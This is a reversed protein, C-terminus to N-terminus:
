IDLSHGPHITCVNLMPKLMKLSQSLAKANSFKHMSSGFENPIYTDGTFLDPNSYLCISGPTHGPTHIVLLSEEGFRIADQDNLFIDIPLKPTKILKYLFLDDKHLSIPINFNLKLESAAKFHDPHAHTLIIQLPKLKKELITTSIFDGEDGPDIIITELTFPDSVLYCNARMEGVPLTTITLSM